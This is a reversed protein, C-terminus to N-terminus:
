GKGTCKHMVANWAGARQVSDVSDDDDGDSGEEADARRKARAADFEAM